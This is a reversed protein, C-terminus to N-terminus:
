EERLSLARTPCHRVAAELRARLEPNVTERLVVLAGTKPDV